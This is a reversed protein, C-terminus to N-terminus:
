RCSRRAYRRAMWHVTSPITFMYTGDGSMTIVFADPAGAERRDGRRRELRALRRREHDAHRAEHAAHHQSMIHFNTVGREARHRGRGIADGVCATLYEATIADGRSSSSPQVGSAHRQEYHPSASAGGRSENRDEADRAARQDAAAGGRCRAICRSARRHVVAADAAEASRRRHSHHERRRTPRNVAPDVARRQRRGAHRRSGRAGREAAEREVPSGQYLPHDHPFSM